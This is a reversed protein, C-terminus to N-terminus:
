GYEEERHKCIFHAAICLAIGIATAIGGILVGAGFLGTIGVILSYIGASGLINGLFSFGEIEDDEKILYIIDRVIHILM